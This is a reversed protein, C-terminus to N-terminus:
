LTYDANVRLHMLLVESFDSMTIMVFFGLLVNIFFGKMLSIPLSRSSDKTEEAVDSINTLLHKMFSTLGLNWKGMHVSCDLGLISYAVPVLGIMTSVGNSSWGGGNYYETLVSGGKRVPSLAWLPIMIVVGILHLFVLIGEVLPLKKALVTNFTICVLAIGFVL